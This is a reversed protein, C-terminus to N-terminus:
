NDGRTQAYNTQMFWILYERYTIPEHHPPDNADTCTPLCEIMTDTRPDFFYPIAYRDRDSVNRVRHTTSLLRDNSWRRLMDGSNVLFSEPIVEPEFWDDGAPRIWLGPVDNQPLLTMFGADTHPAVGWQDEAHDMPPYHSMRLTAQAPQFFQEFYDAPMGLALAYLPLLRHGLTDMTDFYELLPAKFDDLEPWQNRSPKGDGRDERSFFFAENLNPKHGTDIESANSYGGGLGIYGMERSTMPIASKVEDPLAHFRAAREYAGEVRSWEVGHNVIVFFGVETLAQRLESAALELAGPESAMVGELDIVPVTRVATTGVM